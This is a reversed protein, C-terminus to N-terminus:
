NPSVRSRIGQVDELGSQKSKCSICVTHSKIGV